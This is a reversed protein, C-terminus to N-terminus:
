FSAALAGLWGFGDLDPAWSGALDARVTDGSLGIGFTYTPRREVAQIDFLLGGRMALGGGSWEFGGGLERRKRGGVVFVDTTLDFDITLKLSPHPLLLGGVRIQRPLRTIPDAVEGLDPANLNKVVGGVRFKASPILLVGVDVAFVTDDSVVAGSRSRALLKSATLGQRTLRDVPVSQFRGQAQVLKASAGIVLRGQLFPHAASFQFERTRLSAMDIELGGDRIRTVEDAYDIQQFAGGFRPSVIYAGFVREGALGADRSAVTAAAAVGDLADSYGRSVRLAEVWPGGELPVNGLTVAAENRGSVWMGAPNWQLAAWGDAVAVYGGGMAMARPDAKAVAQAQLPSVAVLTAAVSLTVLTLLRPM